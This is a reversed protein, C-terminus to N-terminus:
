LIEKKDRSIFISVHLKNIKTEGVEGPWTHETGKNTQM